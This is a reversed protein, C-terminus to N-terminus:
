EHVPELTHEAHLFNESPDLTTNAIVNELLRSMSHLNKVPFINEFFTVDHSELFTGVFVDHVELKIV